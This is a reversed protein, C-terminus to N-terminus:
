QIGKINLDNDVLRHNKGYKVTCNDCDITLEESHNTGLFSCGVILLLIFMIIIFLLTIKALRKILIKIHKNYM